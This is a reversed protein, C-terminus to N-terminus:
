KDEKEYIEHQSWPFLDLYKKYVDDTIDKYESNYFPGEWDGDNIIKFSYGYLNMMVIMNPFPNTPHFIGPSKVSFGKPPNIREKSKEDIACYYIGM